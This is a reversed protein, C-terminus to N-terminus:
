IIIYDENYNISIPDINDELLISTIGDEEEVIYTDAIIVATLTPLICSPNYKPPYNIGPNGRYVHYDGISTILPNPPTNPKINSATNQVDKNTTAFVVNGNVDLTYLNGTPTNRIKLIKIDTSNFSQLGIPGVEISASDYSGTSSAYATLSPYFLNYTNKNRKYTYKVDYNRPDKPDNIYTNNAVFIKSNASTYRTITFVDSGDGMDWDIRDIPFSGAITTRATLRVPLPSNGVANINLNTGDNDVFALGATPLLEKVIIQGVLTIYNSSIIPTAIVTTNNCVSGPNGEDLTWKKPYKGTKSNTDDWTYANLGNIALNSWSWFSCWKDFCASENGWSKELPAGASLQDWTVSQALGPGLNDWYWQYNYLGQCHRLSPDVITPTETRTHNLTVNYVGPMVYTHEVNVPCPLSVINNSSNYYDGFDYEYKETVNYSYDNSSNNQFVVRLGPAYGSITPLPTFIISEDSVYTATLATWTGGAITNILDITTTENANVRLTETVDGGDIFSGGNITIGDNAYGNITLTAPINFPNTFSNSAIVGLQGGNWGQNNNGPSGLSITDWPFFQSPTTTSDSINISTGVKGSFPVDIDWTYTPPVTQGSLIAIGTNM